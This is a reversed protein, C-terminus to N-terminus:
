LSTRAKQLSEECRALEDKATLIRGQHHIIFHHLPNNQQRLDEQFYMDWQCVDTVYQWVRLPGERLIRSPTGLLGRIESETKQRIIEDLRESGIKQLPKREIDKVKHESPTVLAKQKVQVPPEESISTLLSFDPMSIQGCGSLWLAMFTVLFPYTRM